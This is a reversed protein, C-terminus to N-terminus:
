TKKISECHHNNFANVVINRDLHIVMRKNCSALMILRLEDKVSIGHICNSLPKLYDHKELWNENILWCDNASIYPELEYSSLINMELLTQSRETEKKRSCM